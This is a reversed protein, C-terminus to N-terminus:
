VATVATHIVNQSCLSTQVLRHAPYAANLPADLPANSAGMHNFLEDAVVISTGATEDRFQVERIHRVRSRQILLHGPLSSEKDIVDYIIYLISRGSYTLLLVIMTNVIRYEVYPFM